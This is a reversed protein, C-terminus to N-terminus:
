KIGTLDEFTLDKLAKKFERDGVAENTLVKATKGTAEGIVAATGLAVVKFGLKGAKKLLEEKNM